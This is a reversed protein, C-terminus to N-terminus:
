AAGAQRLKDRQWTDFLSKPYGWRRPSIKYRPPAEGRQHMAELNGLSIRLAEAVENRSYVPDLRPKDDM